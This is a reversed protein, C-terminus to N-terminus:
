VHGRLFNETTPDFFFELYLARSYSLTMVFCSLTRRARGVMVHPSPPSIVPALGKKFARCFSRGCTYAVTAKPVARLADDLVTGSIATHSSNARRSVSRPAM